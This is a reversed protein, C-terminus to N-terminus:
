PRAGPPGIIEIDHDSALAALEEFDGLPLPPDPLVLESAPQGLAAVFREFGAPAVVEVLRVPESSTVEEAHPIGMPGHAVEGPGAVVTRGPLYLTLEGDLVYMTQDSTTHIHLPTQEGPPQLWELLAFRGDTEEGTVLVKVLDGYFWYAAQEGAIASGDRSEAEVSM